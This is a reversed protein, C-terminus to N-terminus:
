GRDPSPLDQAIAALADVLRDVEGAGVAEIMQAEIRRVAGDAEALLERGADTLAAPRRRGSAAVDDRAVLGREQLSIVVSNM